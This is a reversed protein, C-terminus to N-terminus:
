LSTCVYLVNKTFIASFNNFKRFTASRDLRWGGIMVDEQSLYDLDHPVSTSLAEDGIFLYIIKVEYIQKIYCICLKM